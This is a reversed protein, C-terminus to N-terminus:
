LLVSGEGDLGKVGLIYERFLKDICAYESKKPKCLLGKKVLRGLFKSINAEQIGLKHKKVLEVISKRSVSGESLSVLYLVVRERVSAGNYLTDWVNEGLILMTENLAPLWQAETVRGKIERDYLNAGLVQLEYPHGQTYEYIMERIETDFVVGTGELTKDVVEFTEQKSLRKLTLRPTFYRGIPHHLQIFKSWSDPTCALIFLYGAKVIEDDSLINKILTFIESIKDFNQVDDILIPVVKSKTKLDEWLGRLSALLFLQSDTTRTASKAITFGSGLIQIGLSSIQEMFKKLKGLEIPLKMLISKVLHKTAENLGEDDTFKRITIMSTLFGKDQAKRKFEKLLVTKGIGWDGLVLFHDCKGNKADRIKEEFLEFEERRGAFAKPEWGSKATFPNAKTM